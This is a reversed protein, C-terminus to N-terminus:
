FFFKRIHYPLNLPKENVIGTNITTQGNITIKGDGPNYVAVDTRGDGNYDGPVPIDGTDGILVPTANGYIYWENKTMSGTKKRFVARTNKGTGNYDGPVPIDGPQGYVSSSIGPILWQATSSNFTAFDIRGDGNYDMAVPINGFSANTYSTNASLYTQRVYFTKESTRYIACDTTGNGDYDGPVPIDEALSGLNVDPVVNKRKWVGNRFIAPDTTGDGDYDGPVAIDTSLGYNVNLTPSTIMWTAGVYFTPQSKSDNNYDNTRTTTFWRTWPRDFQNIVEGTNPVFTKLSLKDNSRSFRITRLIGQRTCSASYDSNYSQVVHGDFADHRQGEGSVHGGIMMFFNPLNKFKEYIEGAQYYNNHGLLGWQSDNKNDKVSPSIVYHTAIIIKKDAYEPKSVEAYAANYAAVAETRVHHWRFYLILFDGAPTNVIDFHNENTGAPYEWRHFTGSSWAPSIFQSRGFNSIYGPNVPYSNVMPQYFVIDHNGPVSGFPINANRLTNYATRVRTWQNTSETTAPTPNYNDTMDGVSIVYKINEISKNDAIWQMQDLLPQYTQCDNDDADGDADTHDNDFDVYNQTDGIVVLTFEDGTAADTSLLGGGTQADAKTTRNASEKPDIPKECSSFGLTALLFLYLGFTAPKVKNSSSANWRRSQIITLSKM